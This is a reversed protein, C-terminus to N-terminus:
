TEFLSYLEEEQAFHLVLIAHLGYLVRRLDRLDEARPGEAPLQAVLRGFLRTLRHIEHHTQILPGTPDEHRLMNALLPYATQQEEREHPLLEKELIERTRELQARAEGPSLTDLRAALAALDGVYPRLARHTSALGQALAEAEPKRHVLAGGGGLARLANLIVLADIGEQLVAGVAPAIYGAAAFAMAVLSLGIGVLVSELAIRRTRKAILTASLLGELRDSTLVVDAAESAATAGRAGMAVGVDALALAPADNVGDGVMVTVGEARVLRIVEVKEEPTREAFVRDVGLADAVLEAVDPHDGTVMHIRQIGAARLARLARSAEPRIPDQLILVGALSGDISLYVSSSGEVATRLEITRTAATATVDPAVYALQGVAVRHGAVTGAIGTGMQERVELPFSLDVSRSHAEAVIAPAYPHVSVQELSAAYQVLEDSSLGGFAEVAVVQPRAQTVTGTKDLLLVTARALMELPGGGKVIIGHKAARSVGAIIAAPAALILPCPTAVVLVSLARLANGGAIWAFAALALTLVLFGLAFRDALREFPAKSQEAARVLRIIGAYTSEAAPATVRLEFPGGANTGGSRLPVGPELQVPKAEGTLASEDLVASGSSVVGDVPVVEGPKVVLLDGVAVEDVGIDTIDTGARRHATRPARKVLASLERRARAIAFRELATGGTLMVALIAGALYEGLVLAGTMALVAILDVGMERNLLRRVTSVATPILVVSVSLGYAWRSLGAAGVLYSTGGVALGLIATALLVVEERARPQHREHVLRSRRNNLSDAGAQM